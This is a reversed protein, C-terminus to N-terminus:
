VFDLSLQRDRLRFSRRHHISLGHRLVALRHSRTAYGKNSNWEYEPFSHHLVEMHADRSTKALISAAAISNYIGDGRIVCTFPIGRHGPFRNGDVLLHDPATGLQDIARKMALMSANLINIRDIEEEDAIGVGYAIAEDEIIKRLKTRIGASVLKSDNLLPHMFNEPLIVAAAFVPGAICGRGAEDCGAELIGKTCYPKLM